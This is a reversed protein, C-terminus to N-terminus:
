FWVGGNFGGEFVMLVMLGDFLTHAGRERLDIVRVGDHTEVVVM